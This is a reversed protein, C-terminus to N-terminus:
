LGRRECRLCVLSPAYLETGCVDCFAAPKQQQSDIYLVSEINISM